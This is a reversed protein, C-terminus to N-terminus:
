QQLLLALSRGELPYHEGGAHERGPNVQASTTDVLVHWTASIGIHPLFFPIREHHANVLLLLIDDYILHGHESWESMIQGNLLMGLCRVFGSSWEYHSMEGGDPRLWVIDRINAGHVRRGHFFRRRRLVPHQQRIQVLQRTFELLERSREDLAWNLWSIENDQCYANNNGHQTRAREDGALIMPVGQSLLLTAMLNRMQQSRLALIHPDNTPGEVGCNWSNNNDDGDRNDEKNAENHKHNYSVLDNLTFGDHATVFNISAYPRRGNHQYLDSSGSLRYALEGVQAEDGKWFRRVTDRYRGNWESWRVPFNGIQYGGPGIDWPEAILKVQSIVPDQYIVDFFSSLRDDHDLGRALTAALDFRFGDVHMETIWYRLSDTVLNLASPSLMNLSNGTGTYDMYYRPQGPVLRYYAQNDIGRLSLHPGLHNGEATHNYVVDLIVEIGAKHLAKVMAKFEQVQTGPV